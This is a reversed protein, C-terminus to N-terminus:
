EYPGGVVTGCNFTDGAGLRGVRQPATVVGVPFPAHACRAQHTTAIQRGSRVPTGGVAQHVQTIPQRGQASEAAAVRAIRSGDVGTQRWHVGEVQPRVDRPDVIRGRACLHPQRRQAAVSAVAGIRARCVSSQNHILVLEDDAVDRLRAPTAWRVRIIRVFPVSPRSDLRARRGLLWATEEVDNVVRALM